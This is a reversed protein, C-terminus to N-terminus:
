QIVRFKSVAHNYMVSVIAFDGSIYLFTIFICLVSHMSSIIPKDGSLAMLCTHIHQPLHKIKKWQQWGVLRNRHVKDQNTSTSGTSRHSRFSEPTTNGLVLACLYPRVSRFILLDLQETYWAGLVSSM